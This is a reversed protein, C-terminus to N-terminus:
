VRSDLQVRGQLNSERYDLVANQVAINIIERHTFDNLKCTSM